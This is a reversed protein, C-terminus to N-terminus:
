EKTYARYLEMARDDTIDTGIVLRVSASVDQRAYLDNGFLSLYVSRHGEDGYPMSIAFCDNPRSMLVATLGSKADRRLALPVALRPMIKWTVPHPPRAWRGDRCITAATDDRPFMQWDGGSKIAEMFRCSSIESVPQQVCALSAPFGNFYSAVFVELRRLNRQPSVTLQLDLTNDAAWRYVGKMELPHEKDPLWRVNVAGDALLESKSAWDWAATGFRADSTLIRYPSLIGYAGAIQVGSAIHTVPRIGFSKGGEGLTGKLVGTDFRFEKGERHFALKSLPGDGAVAIRGRIVLLIATMVFLLIGRFHNM